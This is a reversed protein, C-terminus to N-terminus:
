DSTNPKAMQDHKDPIRNSQSIPMFSSLACVIDYQALLVVLSSISAKKARPRWWTTSLDLSSSHQLRTHCLVLCQQTYQIHDPSYKTYHFTAPSTLRESRQMYQLNNFFIRNYGLYRKTFRCISSCHQLSGVDAHSFTPITFKAFYLMEIASLRKRGCRSCM